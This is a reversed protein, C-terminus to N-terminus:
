SQMMEWRMPLTPRLKLSSLATEDLIAREYYYDILTEMLHDMLRDFQRAIRPNGLFHQHRRRAVEDLMEFDPCEDSLMMQLFFSQHLRLSTLDGDFFPALADESLLHHYVDQVATRIGVSTTSTTTRSSCDSEAEKRKEDEPFSTEDVVVEVETVSEDDFRTRSGDGGDDDGFLKSLPAILRIVEDLSDQEDAMALLTDAMHEALIRDMESADAGKQKMLHMHRRWHSAAINLDFRSVQNQFSSLCPVHDLLRVDDNLCRAFEQVAAQMVEAGGLSELLSDLSM